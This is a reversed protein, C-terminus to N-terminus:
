LIGLHKLQDKLADIRWPVTPHHSLNRSEVLSGAIIYPSYVEATVSDQTFTGIDQLPVALLAEAHRSRPALQHSKVFDQAQAKIWIVHCWSTYASDKEVCVALLRINKPDFGIPSKEVGLGFEERLTRAVTTFTSPANQPNTDIAPDMQGEYSVSLRYPAFAHSPDNVIAIVSIQDASSKAGNPALLIINHTSIGMPVETTKKQGLENLAQKHSESAIRPLGWLVFYETLATNVILHKGQVLLNRVAAKPANFDPPLGKEERKKVRENYTEQRAAELILQMRPTFTPNPNHNIKIESSTWGQSNAVLPIVDRYEALM